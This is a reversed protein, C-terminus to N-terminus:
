EVRFKLEICEAGIADTILGSSMSISLNKLDKLNDLVNVTKEKVMGLYTRFHLSRVDKVENIIELARSLMIYVRDVIQILEISKEYAQKYELCLKPDRM